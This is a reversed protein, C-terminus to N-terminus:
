KDLHIPHMFVAANETVLQVTELNYGAFMLVISSVNTAESQSWATGV